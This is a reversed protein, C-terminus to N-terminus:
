DPLVVLRQGSPIEESWADTVDSLRRRAPTVHLRGAALHELFVPMQTAIRDMPLSGLGNGILQLNSSRLLAADLNVTPGAMSGVQVWSLRQTSETRGAILARMLADAPEGWLYDIVVDVSGALAAVEAPWDSSEDIRVTHDALEAVERLAEVSRGVGIVDAAGQLKAAQVATQGSAGTAGLVLVSQGAQLEARLALANWGSMGPNMSAAAVAPDLGDPLPMLMPAAAREAFTGYPPRVGGFYALSGDSRRAVGDVGPIMPLQGHASYHQGSARGRVIQHLGAAVVEVLEESGTPEPDAFDRYAPPRGFDEIVAAKM